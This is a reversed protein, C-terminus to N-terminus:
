PTFPADTGPSPATKVGYVNGYWGDGGVAFYYTRNPQLGCAHAEHVLLPYPLRDFTQPPNTFSVGQVFHDLKTPSDGYALFSAHTGADTEWIAAISTSTDFRFSTHVAHPSRDTNGYDDEGWAADTVGVAIPVTGPCGAPQWSGSLAGHQVAAVLGGNAGGHDIAASNAGLDGSRGAYPEGGVQLPPAEQSSPAHGCAFLLVALAFCRRM